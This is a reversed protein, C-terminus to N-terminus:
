SMRGPGAEAVPEFLGGCRQEGTNWVVMTVAAGLQAVPKGAGLHDLRAMLADHLTAPIVGPPRPGTLVYQGEREKVLGSALIM